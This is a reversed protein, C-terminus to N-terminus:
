AQMLLRSMVDILNRLFIGTVEFTLANLTTSFNRQNGLSDIGDSQALQIKHLYKITPPLM